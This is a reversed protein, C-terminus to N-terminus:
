SIVKRMRNPHQPDFHEWEPFVRSWNRGGGRLETCGVSRALDEMEAVIARATRIFARPGGRVSGVIYNIFCAEDYTTTVAIGKADSREVWFAESQGGILWAYVDRPTANKDHAIAEDILGVIREWEIPIRERPIPIFTM